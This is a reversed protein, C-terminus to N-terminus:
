AVVRGRPTDGPTKLHDRSDKQEAGHEEQGLRRAPESTSVAPLLSVINQGKDVALTVTAVGENGELKLIDTILALQLALVGVDGVQVKELRLHKVTSQDTQETLDPGLESSHVNHTLQKQRRM